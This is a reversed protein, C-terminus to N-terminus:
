KLVYEKLTNYSEFASDNIVNSFLQKKNTKTKEDYYLKNL